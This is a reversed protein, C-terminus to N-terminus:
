HCAASGTDAFTGGAEPVFRWDYSQPTCRSSWCETRTSERVESNPRATTFAYHSKGGTGVVFERIGRHRDPSAPRRRRRSASTATTTATWRRRGRERRLAGALAAADGRHGRARRLQLAPPALLRAHLEDPHAALDQRCGREQPSGAGCGGVQSCNSNLAISTGAASTSATTARAATARAAPRSAWATSTTSTAPPRRRRTSTTGRCGPLHHGQCAGLEPRVVAPVPRAHRGRVPHRGPRAGAALEAGVLLDSTYKQRCSSSTGLGNNFSSSTPDCAIDGAAAVVPDGTAPGAPTAAAQVSPPSQNGAADVATVRYTYTVGNTLGGDSWQSATPTAVPSAPWSGDANRRYVRYGALDLRRTTAGTSRSPATEPRRRYPPPLPRHPRTPPRHPARATPTSRTSTSRRLRLRLEM